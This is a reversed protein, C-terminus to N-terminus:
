RLISKAYPCIPVIKINEKEALEPVAQVAIQYAVTEKPEKGPFCFVDNEKILEVAKLTMLKPDGPGVGVGYAKGKAM